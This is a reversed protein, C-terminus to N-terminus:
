SSQTMGVLALTKAQRSVVVQRRLILSCGCFDEVPSQFCSQEDSRVHLQVDQGRLRGVAEFHPRGKKVKEHLKGHIHGKGEIHKEKLIESHLNKSARFHAATRRDHEFVRLYQCTM